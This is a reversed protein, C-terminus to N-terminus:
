IILKNIIFSSPVLTKWQKLSHLNSKHKILLWILYLSVSFEFLYLKLDSFQNIKVYDVYVFNM